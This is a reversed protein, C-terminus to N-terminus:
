LQAKILEVIDAARREVRRALTALVVAPVFPVVVAVILTGFNTMHGEYLIFYTYVFLMMGVAVFVLAFAKYLQVRAMLLKVDKRQERIRKAKAADM